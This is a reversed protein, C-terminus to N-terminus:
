EFTVLILYIITSEIQVCMPSQISPYSFINKLLQIHLPPFHPCMQLLTLLLFCIFLCFMYDYLAKPREKNGKM